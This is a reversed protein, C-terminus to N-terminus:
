ADMSSNALEMSRPGHGIVSAERELLGCKYKGQIYLTRPTISLFTAMLSGFACVYADFAYM